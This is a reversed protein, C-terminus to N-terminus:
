FRRGGLERSNRDAISETGREPPRSPEAPRHIRRTSAVCGMKPRPFCPVTTTPHFSASLTVPICFYASAELKTIDFFNVLRGNSINVKLLLRLSGLFKLM